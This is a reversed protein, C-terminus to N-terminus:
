FPAASSSKSDTRLRKSDVEMVGGSDAIRLIYWPFDITKNSRTRLNEPQAFPKGDPPCCSSEVKM